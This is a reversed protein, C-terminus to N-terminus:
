LPLVVFCRPLGRHDPWPFDRFQQLRGSFSARTTRPRGICMARHFHGHVEVWILTSKITGSGLLHYPRYQYTSRVGSRPLPARQCAGTMLPVQLPAGGARMLQTRGGFGM